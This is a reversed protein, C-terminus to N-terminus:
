YHLRAPDDNTRGMSICCLIDHIDHDSGLLFHTDNDAVIPLDLVAALRQILPNIRDQEPVGHRQM